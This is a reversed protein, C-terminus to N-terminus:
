LQFEDKFTTIAERASETEGKAFMKRVLALLLKKRYLPQFLSFLCAVLYEPDHEPISQITYNRILPVLKVAPCSEQRVRLEEREERTIWDFFDDDPDPEFRVGCCYHQQEKVGKWIPAIETPREDSQEVEDSADAFFL